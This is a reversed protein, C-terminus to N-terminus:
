ASGRMEAISARLAVIESQLRGLEKRRQKRRKDFDQRIRLRARANRLMVQFTIADGHAHPEDHGAHCQSKLYRIRQELVLMDLVEGDKRYLMIRYNDSPRPHSM